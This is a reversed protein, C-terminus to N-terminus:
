RFNKLLVPSVIAALVLFIGFMEVKGFTAGFIIFSLLVSSVPETMTMISAEESTVFKLGANFAFFAIVTGFIIIWTVNFITEPQLFPLWDYDDIFFFTLLGGSFMGASTVFAPSIKKAFIHKPFIASFAFVAGSALSWLVCSLPVSLKNPNGGTVMLFVGVVAFIVAVIDKREPIKRRYVSEWIVVMAPTASLIVTTAAAGGISIAQFYTFQVMVVGITGYIFVDLWLRPRRNLIKIPLFIKGRLALIVLMIFGAACMRINTLEAPTKDSHLFFNQVSVGSSAWCVGALGVFFLASNRRM